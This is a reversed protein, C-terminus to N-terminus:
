GVIGKGEKRGKVWFEEKEVLLGDRMWFCSETRLGFCQDWGVESM